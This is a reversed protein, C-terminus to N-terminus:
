KKFFLFEFSNGIYIKKQYCIIKSCTLVIWLECCVMIIQYFVVKDQLNWYLNEFYFLMIVNLKLFKVPSLPWNYELYFSITFFIKYFVTSINLHPIVSDQIVTAACSYLLPFKCFM